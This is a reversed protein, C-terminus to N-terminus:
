VNKYGLAWENEGERNILYATCISVGARIRASVQPLSFTPALSTFSTSPRKLSAFCDACNNARLSPHNFYLLPLSQLLLLLVPM